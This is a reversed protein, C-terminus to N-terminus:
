RSRSASAAPSRTAVPQARQLWRSVAATDACRLLSACRRRLAAIDSERIAQRVPLLSAPHMSLEGIGLALLMPTLAPDGAMEGCLALPVRHRAATDVILRLLRPVAPHLPTSLPGLAENGRDVALLYQLLDNSGISLFDCQGIFGSLGLAAAPVEIMAGLPISAATAHGAARVAEVALQLRQRVARMEEGNSVMPVLVRVPGWASARAIARLQTDLLHPHALSLRVGRMGLAPNPEDPLMLGSADAKDAGLDLTRITVTRGTMGLVLERYARFQTDEDPLSRRGLFLFETRYLGVGAAGLAHGHAVDQVSEANAWLRVDVGDVSRSPERRLRNLQRIERKHAQRRAHHRRLDDASPEVIVEGSDGDVALVDGDNIQLLAQSTGTVLPLQLSRALIAVHSLPSGAATVVALVGQAQLRALEAPAVTDAILIDGAVPQLTDDHRHLAAHIRGIVLDIDEIRARLYPDDMDGFAAALRDREARLASDAGQGGRIRTDLGRRLEPDDLLLAHVDLFEGVERSLTGQQLRGRLTRIEERVADIAQALRRLEGSIQAPGIRQDEVELRHPLRVRARGLANGRSAGHGSLRRRM